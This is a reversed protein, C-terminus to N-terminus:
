ASPFPALTCLLIQGTLKKEKPKPRLVLTNYITHENKSKTTLQSFEICKLSTYLIIFWTGHCPRIKGLTTTHKELNKGRKRFKWHEIIGSLYKTHKSKVNFNWLHRFIKPIHHTIKIKLYM